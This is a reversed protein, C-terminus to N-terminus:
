EQKYEIRVVLKYYGFGNTRQVDECRAKYVGWLGNTHQKDMWDIVGEIMKDSTVAGSSVIVADDKIEIHPITGLKRCASRATRYVPPFPKLPVNEDDVEHYCCPCYHKNDVEIWDDDQASELAGIEDSFYEYEAEHLEFCRNCRIAYFIAPIYSM